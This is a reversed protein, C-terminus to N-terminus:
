RREGTRLSGTRWGFEHKSIDRRGHAQRKALRRKLETEARERNYGYKEQLVGILKDFKGAALELNDGAVTGRWEKAQGRLQKWKGDIVAKNM